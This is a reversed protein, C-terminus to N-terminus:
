AFQGLTSKIVTNVIAPIDAMMILVSLIIKIKVYRKTMVNMLMTVARIVMGTQNACVNAQPPTV